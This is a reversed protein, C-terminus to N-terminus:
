RPKTTPPPPPPIYGKEVGPTRDRGSQRWAALNGAVRLTYPHEPGLIRRMAELVQDELKSAGSLDGQARLTNALNDAVTLTDPHEPGLTRRMAELVQEQLTRAGSLDGQNGLSNALNSAARLTDPHEPGLTRRMAELVQEQLKRAGSLDGQAHVTAALNGAANLTDPHEPGLIRRMAELVQDQLKRAGSLDGQARLTNALNGAARLTDPHEPGLIRQRAELVQDQLKRAGSLDGQDGLTNALNGAVDLTDPHEPGLIRRMAELVQDQLKRAGSLDGQARLMNALNGAVDLTDPHEPGLIRRRAELVQEQLKRAGSLDGQAPLMAALNSAADLSDPHELGLIRRRVELVQEQLKRAGSLDGQAFLTIAIRSRLESAELLTPSAPSTPEIAAALAHTHPVLSNVLPWAKPDELSEKDLLALIPEDLERLEAEPNESQARVFNALVRHMRGYSQVPTGSVPAVFSRGVLAARAEGPALTDGLADILVEPVPDPALRAVLRALRQAAPSLLSYSLAFAETIGRLSGKPVQDRLAEMQEDLPGTTEMGAKAIDRLKSVPLAALQLASNLLVLALPLRGVWEAIAAWDEQPLSTRDLKETLVAIAAKPELEPLSIREVGDSFPVKLRSTVLLAVRGPAPCWHSIPEPSTGHAPEPMNDVVFLAPTKAPIQCLADAVRASVDVNSKRLEVLDPTGPRLAVLIGHLQEELREPSTDADVWFLGGPYRHGYKHVYELALRTKGIGGFGDIGVTPRTTEPAPLRAGLLDHMNALVGSRGAFGPGSRLPLVSPYVPRSALLAQHAAAEPRPFQASLWPWIVM